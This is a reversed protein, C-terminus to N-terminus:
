IQSYADVLEDDSIGNSERWEIICEEMDPPTDFCLAIICLAKNPAFRFLQDLLLHTAKTLKTKNNESVSYISLLFRKVVLVHSPFDANEIGIYKCINHFKVLNETEDMAFVCSLIETDLIIHSHGWASFHTIAGTLENLTILNLKYCYRLVADIWISNKLGLVQNAWQRYFLDESLLLRNPQLSLNASDWFHAGAMEILKSTMENPKEAWSVVEVKCHQLIKDRQKKIFTLRNQNDDETRIYRQYQGDRWGISMKEGSAFGDCDQILFQIEDLVSQPVIINKFVKLLIPFLNSVAVHWSTYTDLVVADFNNLELLAIASELEPISGGNTYIKINHNLLMEAASIVDCDRSILAALMGLPLSKDLYNGLFEQKKEADAKIIKLISTIDGSDQLTVMFLANSEPFNTEFQEMNTHLAHLYKHKIGTIEWILPPFGKRDQKFKYGISKGISAVVLPHKLDILPIHSVPNDDYLFDFRIGNQNTLQVCYEKQVINSSPILNGDKDGLLLLGIYLPIVKQDNPNESLVRYGFAIAEAGRRYKKMLQALHMMFVPNGKIANPKVESIVGKIEAEKNQRAYSHLLTTLANLDEPYTNLVSVLESEAKGLEGQNYFLVGKLTKFQQISAVEPPLEEFFNLANRQVPLNSAFAIALYNLEDSYNQTSIYGNLSDIVTLWDRRYYAERGLMLRAAIKSEPLINKCARKYAIDSIVNIKHKQSEHAIVLLERINKGALKLLPKFHGANLSIKLELLKALQVVIRSCLQEHPPFAEIILDKVQSLFETNTKAQAIRFQLFESRQIPILENLVKEALDILNSQLLVQAINNLFDADERCKKIAQEALLVLEDNKHLFYFINALNICNVKDEESLNAEGNFSINWAESLVEAAATLKLNQERSICFTKDIIEPNLAEEIDAYAAYKEIDKDKPFLMTGAHAVKWWDGYEGRYQLFHIHGVIVSSTNQLDQPILDLPEKIEPIARSAQLVYGALAENSPNKLLQVNGFDFAEKPKGQLLLALVKNSIAKPENPAQAYADLLFESAKENNGNLHHCIGINAKIRFRIKGSANAAVRVYLKELLQLATISKHQKILDAIEDVNSNLLDDIADRNDVESADALQATINSLKNKLTEFQAEALGTNITLPANNDGGIAISSNEAVVKSSSVLGM